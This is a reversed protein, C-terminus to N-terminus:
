TVTMVEGIITVQQGYFVDRIPKIQSYDEYRHPFNYLMDGLTILGLRNLMAAHRPGVGALVTLSANLAIPRKSTVGGPRSEARGPKHPPTSIKIKTDAQPPAADIKPEALRAVNDPMAQGPNEVKNPIQPPDAPGTHSAVSPQVPPVAAPKKGTAAEPITEQIHKWLAKLSKIRTEATLDSYSKLTTLTDQIIEEPIQENRAIGEWHALINALGGIIAANSYGNGHELRFYKRLM